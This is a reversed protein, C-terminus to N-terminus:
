NGITSSISRSNQKAVETAAAAAKTASAESGERTGTSILSSAAVGKLDYLPLRRGQKLTIKVTKSGHWTGLAIRDSERSLPMGGAICNAEGARKISRYSIANLAAQLDYMTWENDKKFDNPEDQLIM